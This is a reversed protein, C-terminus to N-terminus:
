LLKSTVKVAAKETKGLIESLPQDKMWIITDVKFTQTTKDVDANTNDLETKLVPDNINNVRRIYLVSNAPAQNANFVDNMSSSLPSSTQSKRNAKKIMEEILDAKSKERTYTSVLQIGDIEALEGKELQHPIAANKLCAALHRMDKPNTFSVFIVQQDQQQNHKVLLALAEQFQPYGPNMANWANDFEETTLRVGTAKELEDIMIQNFQEEKIKGLKFLNVTETTQKIVTLIGANIERIDAEPKKQSILTTFAMIMLRADPTVIDGLNIITIQKRTALM